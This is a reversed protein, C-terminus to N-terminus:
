AELVITLIVKTTCVQDCFDESVNHELLRVLVIDKSYLARHLASYGDLNYHERFELSTGEMLLEMLSRDVKNEAAVHLITGNNFMPRFKSKPWLSLLWEAIDINNCQVAKQLLNSSILEEFACSGCIEILTTLLTKLLEIENDGILTNLFNLTYKKGKLFYEANFGDYNIFVNIADFNGCEVALDFVTKGDTTVAHLVDSNPKYELLKKLLSVDNKLVAVHVISYGLENIKWDCVNSDEPITGENFIAEHVITNGYKKASFVLSQVEYLIKPDNAFHIKEEFIVFSAKNNDKLIRLIDEEFTDNILKMKIVNKKFELVKMFEEFVSDISSFKGRIKVMSDGYADCLCMARFLEEEGISEMDRAMVVISSFEKNLNSLFEVVFCELKFEEDTRECLYYQTCYENLMKLRSLIINCDHLTNARILIDNTDDILGVYCKIQSTFGSLWWQSRWGSGELEEISTQISSCVNNFIISAPFDM